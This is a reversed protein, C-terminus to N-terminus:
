CTKECPLGDIYRAWEARDLGGGTRACALEAPRDLLGGVGGLDWLAVTGEPDGVALTHGHPSVAPANPRRQAAASCRGLHTALGVV